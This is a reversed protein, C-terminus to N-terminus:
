VTEGPGWVDPAASARLGSGDQPSALFGIATICLEEVAISQGIRRCFLWAAEVTVFVQRHKCLFAESKIIM